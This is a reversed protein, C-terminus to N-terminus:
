VTAAVIVALAAVTAAALAFGVARMRRPTLPAPALAAASLCGPVLAWAVWAPIEGKGAVAAAVALVALSGACALLGGRLSAGRALARAKIAHVAWTALAFTLTWVAFSGYVFAADAGGAQAVPLGAASLATAAVLTGALSKEKRAMVFPVLLATAALAAGALLWTERSAHALGAAGLVLSIVARVMAQRLARPGAARQARKGRQGLHVLLPEHGLFAALTACALAVSPLRGHVVWVATLLPALLQVYAGHERPLLWDIQPTTRAPQKADGNMAWFIGCGGRLRM